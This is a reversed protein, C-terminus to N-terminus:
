KSHWRKAFITEGDVTVRGEYTVRTRTVRGETRVEVRKGQGTTFTIQAKGSVSARDPRAASVSATARQSTTFIQGDPLRLSQGSGFTTSVRQKVLDTATTWEHNGKIVWPNRSSEPEPREVIGEGAIEASSPIVPLTIRSHGIEVSFKVNTPAPWFRPFDAGAVSLRLRHGARIVYATAFMAIQVQGGHRDVNAWGSTILSAAGTPSVDVLKAAVEFPGEGSPQLDLSVSPSGTIELAESLPATTYTLSALDDPGQDGALGAGSGLPDFFGAAGGVTPDCDLVRGRSPTPAAGAVLSEGTLYHVRSEARAPPWEEEHRWGKNRVYLTVASAPAKTTQGRVHLDFFEALLKLADVPENAADPFVHLWPGIVLRKPADIQGYAQVTAEPSLDHWGSILFTPVAIREVEIRRPSWYESDGIRALWRLSDPGRSELRRLRDRWVKRWRGAADQYTPPALEQALMVFERAYRGLCLPIGAPAIAQRHIDWLGYISAIALLAPPREAATALATIGGYSVGWVGVRGDSWDQEATWAVVAAGDRGEPRPDMSETATGESGGYGRCDVLLHAYGREVFYRRPYECFSGIVDDKRYPYLSVLTPYSDRGDPLYLDAALSVGDPLPILLNRVVRM